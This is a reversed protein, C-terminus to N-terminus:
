LRFNIYFKLGSVWEVGVYWVTTVLKVPVTAPQFIGGARGLGVCIGNIVQRHPAYPHGKEGSHEPPLLPEIKAWQENSLGARRM